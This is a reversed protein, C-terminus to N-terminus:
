SRSYNFGSTSQDRVQFRALEFPKFESSFDKRHFINCLIRGVWSLSNWRLIFFVGWGFQRSHSLDSGSFRTWERTVHGKLESTEAQSMLTTWSWRGRTWRWWTTRSSRPGRSSLKHRGSTKSILLVSELIHPSLFSLFFGPSWLVLDERSAFTLMKLFDLNELAAWIIWFKSPRETFMYFHSKAFYLYSVVFFHLAYKQIVLIKPRCAAGWELWRQKWFWSM